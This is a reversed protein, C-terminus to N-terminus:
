FKIGIREPGQNLDYYILNQGLGDMSSPTSSQVAIQIHM